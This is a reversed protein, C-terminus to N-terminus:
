QQTVINNIQHILTEKSQVGIFQKVAKGKKFLILTPISSIGYKASMMRNEDVDLKAIVAKDGIAEVVEHLIPTQMRCPACWAAWFDVLVVDNSLLKEFNQDNVNIVEKKITNM